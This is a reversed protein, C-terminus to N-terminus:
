TAVAAAAYRALVRSSHQRHHSTTYTAHPLTAHQSTLVCCSAALFSEIYIM